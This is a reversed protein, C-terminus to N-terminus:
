FAGANGSDVYLVSPRFQFFHGHSESKMSRRCLIAMAEMDDTPKDYHAGYRESEQWVNYEADTLFLDMREDFSITDTELM